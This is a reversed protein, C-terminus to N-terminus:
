KMKQTAAVVPAKVSLLVIPKNDQIFLNAEWAIRNTTRPIGKSLVERINVDKVDVSAKVTLDPFRETLGIADNLAIRGDSLKSVEAVLGRATGEYKLTIKQDMVLPTKQILSKERIHVYEPTGADMSVEAEPIWKRLLDLFASANELPELPVEVFRTRLPSIKSAPPMSESADREITFYLSFREGYEQLLSQWYVKEGPKPAAPAAHSTSPPAATGNQAIGSEVGLFFAFVGIFVHHSNMNSEKDLGLYM